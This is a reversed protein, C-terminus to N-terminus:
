ASTVEALHDRVVQALVEIFAPDDNPMATREFRLGAQEALHRAEIDVDFLTELHDAVFGASCVVVASRGDRALGRIVQELDPGWWPDPTRGASQWGTTFGGEALGLREATLSATEGLGDVYRCSSECTTCTKCRRSGDDLTRTPLSHASFVVTAGAREEPSLRQLAVAVRTALFAVFAPHDHFSRVFTLAPGGNESVERRARQVYTEVSMGSWHPAMTIGVARQIGDERMGAVAEPIFPPSHKMGLYARFAEGDRSLERELGSAQSSTTQLLSFVNGIAAYRERLEALHEPSPPRGGRIDTYYREIDDPGSATGYAMVLLGTPSTVNRRREYRQSADLDRRVVCGRVRRAICGPYRLVPEPGAEALRARFARAGSGRPARASPSRDSAASWARPQLRTRRPRGSTGARRARRGRDGGVRCAAESSRPQGPYREALRDTRWDVGIVDGGAGAMLGLLEGTGVGFHIAPVRPELSALGEMVRRSWPMVHREYDGPPLAGAWSDFLQVAQAGAQVQAGLHALVIGTLREMLQAWMEPEAHMLARARDHNRSPGGEVLYSALTFPAGAFGILPVSLEGRLLRIAELVEPVDESPELPRLRAIGSEDRIPEDVVPGRGAEIRLPVGVAALPVMIDSFLIAADLEMRRLPQLSIEVALAPDKCSELIDREGRLERYEPLYRGAQRMFWVPTRDVQERRCARLFRDNFPESM